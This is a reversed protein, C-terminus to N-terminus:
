SRLPREAATDLDTRSIPVGDEPERMIKLAWRNLKGVDRAVKDSVKLRWAGQIIQGHLDQLRPTTTRTYTKLLNDASGGTRDHLRIITGTPSVLEVLLDGVFTHTIEVVVEVDKIRGASPATLTREIGPEKNDPITAGPAEELEVLADPQGEVELEWRNLRGGDVAALDQVHLTWDGKLSQGVLASLAPTQAPDFTRRIDNASGGNRNHLVVPMGQPGTLTLRLDGIFTHTIDVTVKVSSIAAEDGFQITSRVGAPDNDPIGLAPTSDKRFTKHASPGRRRLAEAVAAQADARGHGFWPSWTGDAAGTDAFNGRDFPAIPSVDWSPDPDVSAPPTRPYGEFSLDKSATQKLISVADLATLDPSASITLAAIGAVLPTASSTGGFRETVGGAEGTTTTVGLGRVTLRRYKHSNNTPASIMIGTGYNSYHSRRATSALAAVHMLGPIGVLDNRFQRATRVGVWRSGDPNWGNTFPTDVQANHEIPCNDNGAAWLFVIGRGRRGGTRALTAIRNVVLLAHTNGPVIGWSNSLVDVKDAVFDLVTLLKSDSIFLSPGSSEWQIPLLRCGPAAGVTLVADAEGAIVGACSTGHNAGPKYMEGPNADIDAGTILREGRFYGWTAFKGPSNFDPHDLKCGDDTVGVVVDASGFHNLLQWAAECRTSSRPDFDANGLRTHLHWQRAYAPDTPLALQYTSVRQNLDHEASEVLPEQETLTVVLKVPNMGTHDTLQFLYDRDSYAAKRILAYRGAFEDIEEDPLPEKFTVFVRDTILFEQGTDAEYYAHHTPALHRSRDMLPELDTARTTVRSSASSVQEADMIGLDTLEDPLARAVFQDPQKELLIKQGARYTYTQQPDPM